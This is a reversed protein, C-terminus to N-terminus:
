AGDTLFDLLTQIRTVESDNEGLRGSLEALLDRADSYRDDGITESIKSLLENVSPTRSATDMVEELVRSSDVGFSHSPSYVEGDAIIHIRDHEVEGIVQPSHTTAIFQCQPFTNTLNGVIRRQWGPHLHLEIEDILVVAEAEAAPDNMEPNAQALRRTLDLVLALVGREGDSLLEAPLTAADRDILFISGTESAGGLRFNRYDPLFRMVAAELAALVHSEASQESRLAEQVQMWLEFEVLHLGRRKSLANSFAANVGGATASKPPTRESPVARRTSFLIALPRGGPEHGTAAPPSGGVFGAREPTDHVQERPMGAKEEQPAARENPVHLVYGYREHDDGYEVDCAVDLAGAGVRMDALDFRVGGGRLRNTRRVVDSLCVALADLVTTKGVGNVGVVLNFGPRFRFEAAEIARVNALKLRAVRM